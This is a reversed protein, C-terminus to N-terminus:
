RVREAVHSEVTWDVGNLTVASGDTLQVYDSLLLIPLFTTYSVIAPAAGVKRVLRVGRAHVGFTRRGRGIVASGSETAVKGTDATPQVALAANSIRITHVGGDDSTYGTRTFKNGVIQAM